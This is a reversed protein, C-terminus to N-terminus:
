KAIRYKLIAWINEIPNLDPSNAPWDMVLLGSREFTALTEFAKHIPANDQMIIPRQNFLSGDKHDKSIQSLRPLIETRYKAGDIRGKEFIFVQKPGDFSIAGWIMCASYKRFRAILCDPEFEEGVARTVYVQGFHGCRISAEDTWIVRSWQRDSWNLHERAWQLRHEKQIENLLPKARAIRRSYGERQLAKRLTRIDFHLDELHALQNLPLRRNETSLQLRDVLRRRKRTTCVPPRGKPRPPTRPEEYESKTAIRYVTTKSIQLTDSIRQIPWHAFRYLAVIQGRQYSDIWKGLMKSIALDRFCRLNM